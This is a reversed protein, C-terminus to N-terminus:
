RLIALYGTVPKTSNGLKIIYYYTGVPLNTGNLKGNWPIPYGNSYYVKQGYRNLVEVTCNTYLDLHKIEWNDNIGDGNPTFANPPNVTGSIIELVGPMYSITYNTAVAGSVNIPYLGVPSLKGATTTVVPLSTLQTSDESNVFGTYKVTFVPNDDGLFKHKNDATITLPAPTVIGSIPTNVTTAGTSTLQINGTYNGAPLKSKLRVYIPTSPIDGVSGVTVTNSFNMNDTSVEFSDSATIVLGEKLYAASINITQTIGDTGYQESLAPIIGPDTIVPAPNVTVTFVIPVGNCGIGASIFNGTSNPQGQWPISSIIQNNSTNIMTVMDPTVSTVYLLNGSPSVSIGQPAGQVPITQVVLNTATNIVSVSKSLFNSVYVSKGDPTIALSYPAQGVPITTAAFTKSNIASVTNLYDNTLYVTNGDASVVIGDPSLGIPITKIISKDATNIAYLTGTAAIGDATVYLTKGDNSIAVSLAYTIPIDSVTNNTLDIISVTNSSKNAVYAKKGDPSVVISGANRGVPITSIVKNQAADIVSVTGIGAHGYVDNISLVYVRTGDPSVSVAWPQNDVPIDKVFNGNATNFVSVTNLSSNAIYAYGDSTPTATITAIIPTTGKNIATFSPIDGVGNSKLGVATNNNVWKYSCGASSFSPLAVVDGNSVIVSNQAIVKIPFLFVCFLGLAFFWRSLAYKFQGPILAFKM